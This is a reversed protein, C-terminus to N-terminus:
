FKWYQTSGKWNYLCNQKYGAVKSSTRADLCGPPLILWSLRSRKPTWSPLGHYLWLAKETEFYVSFNKEGYTNKQVGMPVVLFIRRIATNETVEKCLCIKNSHNTSWSPSFFTMWDNKIFSPAFPPGRERTQLVRPRRWPQLIRPASPAGIGHFKLQM